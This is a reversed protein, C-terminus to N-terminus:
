EPADNDNPQEDRQPHDLDPREALHLPTPQQTRDDWSAAQHCLRATLAALQQADWQGARAVAIEIATLGHWDKGMYKIRNEPITWRTYLAGARAGIEQSRFVRSKQALLWSRVGGEEHEYLTSGPLAPQHKDKPQAGHSRHTPRPVRAGTACRIVALDQYGLGSGPLPGHGFSDNNLGPWIGRCSEADVFVVLPRSRSFAALAQDVYDRIDQYHKRARGVATTGVDTAHYAATGVRYPVWTGDADSYTETYWSTDANATAHIAVLRIVLRKAPKAKGRRRPTHQRIHVGILITDRDLAGKLHQGVTALALRNDIVGVHRFLDRVAAIAPEDRPTVVRTVGNRTRTRPKPPTWNSNIFQAVVGHEGLTRRLPHKADNEPPNDPDWDTEALVAIATDPKPELWAIGNATRDQTGHDLLDPNQHFVVTLRETLPVPNEDSAGVLLHKGSAAYPALADSMRRRVAPTAYLCVIRLEHAQSAAIAADLKEPPIPGAIQEQVRIATPQYRLPPTGLIKTAHKGLQYLFRVGPGKGIFHKRPKGIPRVQGPLVPLEPPLTIPDLGCSEIVEATFGRFEPNLRGKKPYPPLVPLKTIPLNPDGRDLWTNRVFNWSYPQRSVHGDLRLYLHKAGPVTIIRTSIQVMAHGTNNKSARSLPHEWAVLNADTDLRFRIPLHDDICVPTEAIRSALNWRAADYIWGPAAVSDTADDIDIFETLPRAKPEISTILPALANADQDGTSQHEFTEVTTKLIWPDFEGTTILLAIVGRDTDRKSLDWRPFLRVPQNSAASLATALASYSPQVEDRGIRARVVQKLHEWAVLFEDTLPYVVLDGIQDLDIRYCLTHLGVDPNTNM